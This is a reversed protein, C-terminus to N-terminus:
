EFLGIEAANIPARDGSRAAIAACPPTDPGPDLRPRAQKAAGLDTVLSM